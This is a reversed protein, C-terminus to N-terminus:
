LYEGEYNLMLEQERETLDTTIVECVSMPEGFLWGCEAKFYTFAMMLRGGKPQRFVGLGVAVVRCGVLNLRM